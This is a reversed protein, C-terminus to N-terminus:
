IEEPYWPVSIVVVNREGSFLLATKLLGARQNHLPWSFWNTEVIEPIIVAVTRNPEKGRIQKVEAIVPRIFWRYPSRLFKLEPVPRKDDLLPKEVFETWKQQLEERDADDADVHIALVDPSISMGLRIAKEAVLNWDKIPAVIYPPKPPEPDMPCECALRKELRRYHRGIRSFLMALCPILLVTIWAGDAFKAVLVIVLTIGTCVAGLGNVALSARWGPGKKKRWHEVM